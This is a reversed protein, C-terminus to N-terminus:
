IVWLPQFAMLYFLDFKGREEQRERERERERQKEKVKDRGWREGGKKSNKIKGGKEQKGKNMCECILRVIHINSLFM